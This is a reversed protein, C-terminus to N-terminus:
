RVQGLFRMYQPISVNFEEMMNENGDNVTVFKIKYNSM